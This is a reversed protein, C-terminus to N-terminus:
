NDVGSTVCKVNDKLVGSGSDQDKLGSQGWQLPM